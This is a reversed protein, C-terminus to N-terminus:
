GRPSNLTDPTEIIDQAGFSTEFANGEEFRAETSDRECVAVVIRPTIVPRRYLRTSSRQLFEVEECSPGTLSSM